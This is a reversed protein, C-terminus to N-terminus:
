GSRACRCWRGGDHHDVLQVRRPRRPARLTGRQSRADPADVRAACDRRSCGPPERTTDTKSGCIRWTTCWTRALIAAASGACMNQSWRRRGRPFLFTVPMEAQIIPMMERYIRDVEDPDGTAEAKDLLAVVRPNVYGFLSGEGFWEKLRGPITFMEAILAEFTGAKTRARVVSRDLFQVDMQIGLGRLQSQIYVASAADRPQALAVFSFPKGDRERVRGGGVDRWGAEDLLRKARTTDYPWPDPFEGRRFQRATPPADVIPTEDPLNLVQGLERRNIALTLAARVSADRFLPHDHRWVIANLFYNNIDYYVLFRSDRRIQPVDKLDLWIAQVHGSLLETLASEATLGKLVVREIRPRGRYYTPSAEYETMTRPVQRVFRYAGNGVPHTWFDWARFTKPDLRDLVHKPYFVPLPQIPDGIGRQYAITYTWDDLVTVSFGPDIELVDPHSLLELTFKVDHATVPVGDQWTVDPRLRITWTRYDSSHEWSRALRKELEGKLNWKVLPEFVLWQASGNLAINESSGGGSELAYFVTLTAERPEAPRQLCGSGGLAFMQLLWERRAIAALVARRHHAVAARPVRM